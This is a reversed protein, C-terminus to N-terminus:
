QMSCPDDGLDVRDPDTAWDEGADFRWLRRIIREMDPEQGDPTRLIEEPAIAERHQGRQHLWRVFQRQHITRLESSLPDLQTAFPSPTRGTLPEATSTAANPNLNSPRQTPWATGNVKSNALGFLEHVLTNRIGNQMRWNNIQVPVTPGVYVQNPHDLALPWLDQISVAAQSSLMVFLDGWVLSGLIRMHGQYGPCEDPRRPGIKPDYGPEVALVFGAFDGPLVLDTAATYSSTTYSEISPQDVVLFVRENMQDQLYYPFEEPEYHEVYHKNAAEIDGEPIGLAKGDRWHLKLYPKLSESGTQGQGWDAIHAELKERFAAWEAESQQYSLRYITLGYSQIERGFKEIPWVDRLIWPEEPLPEIPDGRVERRLLSQSNIQDLVTQHLSEPDAVHREVGHTINQMISWYQTQRSLAKLRPWYAKGREKLDPSRLAPIINSPVPPPTHGRYGNMPIMIKYDAGAAIESLIHLRDTLKWQLPDVVDLDIPRHTALDRMLPTRLEGVHVIVWRHARETMVQFHTAMYETWLKTVSVPPLQDRTRRVNLMKDMEDWHEWILNFTDHLHKAVTPQNLYEFTAIVASLQQCAFDFNQPLHLGKEKWRQDSLPILGEWLRAKISQINKGVQCLRDSDTFSGIRDIVRGSISRNDDDTEPSTNALQAEEETLHELSTKKGNPLFGHMCFELFHVITQPELLRDIM